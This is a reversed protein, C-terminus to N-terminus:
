RITDYLNINRRSNCRLNSCRYQWWYIPNNCIQRSEPILYDCHKHYYKIDCVYIGIVYPSMGSCKKSLLLGM